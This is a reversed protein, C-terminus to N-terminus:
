NGGVEPQIGRSHFEIMGLRDWMSLGESCNSWLSRAGEDDIVEVLCIWKDVMNPGEERIIDSLAVHIKESVRDLDAM